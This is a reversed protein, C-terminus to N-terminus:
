MVVCSNEFPKLLIISMKTHMGLTVSHVRSRSLLFSRRIARCMRFVPRIERLYERNSLYIPWNPTGINGISENVYEIIRILFIYFDDLVCRLLVPLFAYM